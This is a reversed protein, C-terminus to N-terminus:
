PDVLGTSTQVRNMRDSACLGTNSSLSHIQWALYKREAEQMEDGIRIGRFEFPIPQLFVLPFAPANRGSMLGSANPVVPVQALAFLSVGIMSLSMLCKM